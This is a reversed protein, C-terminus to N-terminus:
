AGDIRARRPRRPLLHRPSRDTPSVERPEGRRDNRPDPVAVPVGADDGAPARAGGLWLGLGLVLVVVVAKAFVSVAADGVDQWGDDGWADLIFAGTATLLVILLALGLRVWPPAKFLSRASLASATAAALVLIAGLLPVGPPLGPVVLGLAILAGGLGVALAVANTGWSSRASLHQVLVWLLIAYGRLASFVTQVLRPRQFSTLMSTFAAAGHSATRAFTDSGGTLEADIRQRGITESGVEMDRLRNLSPPLGSREDFVARTQRAWQASSALQDPELEVAHALQKLEEELIEAHLRATIKEAVLPFTRPLPGDGALPRLEERLLELEDDWLQALEERRPAGEPGVAVARLQALAKELDNFGEQRLREPTLLMQVLQEAGDLRGRMWDNVRWSARYFAGFHHAQIGTILAPDRTRVQVLEVEQEPEPSAGAFAVQMVEMRLMCRLVDKKERGSTLLVEVLKRFRDRDEGSPDVAVSPGDAIERLASRATVLAGALDLAQGHLTMRRLEKAAKDPGEWSSLSVDLEARLAALAATDAVVAAGRPTLDRGRECWFENLSRHDDRIRRLVDHLQERAEVVQARVASNPPALWVARRLVDLTIDGLRNVASQGWVWQKPLVDLAQELTGSPVFPMQDSLERLVAALERRSWGKAEAGRCMYRSISEAASQRRVEVYAPFAAAVIDSGASELLAWALRDRARRRQRTDDNRREVEALEAAVSDTSRLRTLVGLLVEHAKPLPGPDTPTTLAREGPDPVVYVLLRRVQPGASQRYVANIAPRIPKNLLVGGDVVYRTGDASSLGGTSWWREGFSGQEKGDDRLMREVKVPEFAGPFSATSRSAVALQNVVDGDELNGYRTGTGVLEPDSSFLFTADYDVEVIRRGMDDDFLTQRGQWLTGTLYLEVPELPKDGDKPAPRGRRPTSIVARYADRLRERFYEGRLLSPADKDRPDRLLVALDGQDRWLERMGMLDCGHVLGLSLFGGNLGGASTGAIVDIRATADLMDLLAAYASGTRKEEDLRSAQVLRHLEVVVGSIWVALSVGGNLVVALRIDQRNAARIQDADYQRLSEVEVPKTGVATGEHADARAGETM